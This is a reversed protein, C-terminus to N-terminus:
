LCIIEYHLFQFIKRAFIRCWRVTSAAAKQLWSARYYKLFILPYCFLFNCIYLVMINKYYIEVTNIYICTVAPFTQHMPLMITFCLPFSHYPFDMNRPVRVFFTFFLVRCRWLELIIVVCCKPYIGLLTNLPLLVPFPFCMQCCILTFPSLMIQDTDSLLKWWLRM